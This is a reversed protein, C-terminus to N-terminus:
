LCQDHLGLKAVRTFYFMVLHLCEASRTKGCKQMHVYWLSEGYLRHEMVTMAHYKVPESLSGAGRINSHIM